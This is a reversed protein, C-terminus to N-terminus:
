VIPAVIRLFETVAMIPVGYQHAKQAKGSMSSPDAAVLLDCSKKTVSAVPQCGL